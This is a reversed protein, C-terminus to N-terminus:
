AGAKFPVFPIGIQATVPQRLNRLGINAGGRGILLAREDSYGILRDIETWPLSRHDRISGRWAGKPTPQRAFDGPVRHAILGYANPGPEPPQAFPTLGLLRAAIWHQPHLGHTTM